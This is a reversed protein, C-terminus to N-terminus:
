SEKSVIRWKATRTERSLNRLASFLVGEGAVLDVAFPRLAQSAKLLASTIEARRLGALATKYASGRAAREDGLAVLQDLHFRNELDSVGPIRGEVMPGLQVDLAPRPCELVVVVFTAESTWPVSAFRPARQWIEVGREDRVLGCEASLWSFTESATAVFFELVDTM